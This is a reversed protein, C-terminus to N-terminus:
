FLDVTADQIKPLAEKMWVEMEQALAAGYLQSVRSLQAAALNPYDRKLSEDMQKSTTAQMQRFFNPLKASVEQSIVIERALQKNEASAESQSYVSFHASALCAILLLKKM